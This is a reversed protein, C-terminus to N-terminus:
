EQPADEAPKEGGEAPKEGEGEAPTEAGKKGKVKRAEIIFEVSARSGGTGGLAAQLREADVGKGALFMRIASARRAMMAKTDAPGGHAVIKLKTIETHGRLVQALQSLISHSTVAVTVEDGRVRFRLEERVEIKNEKDNLVVKVEGKDPCGDDDKYGNITEPENPCYDDKDPVGDKDNDPDPCGDDDEFGDQDEPEDPCQDFQDPVGDGDNDPDPCGDEDQFGDKDEAEEPCKDVYDM